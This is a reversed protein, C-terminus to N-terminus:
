TFCSLLANYTHCSLVLRSNLLLGQGIIPLRTMSYAWLCNCAIDAYVCMQSCMTWIINCQHPLCEEAYRWSVQWGSQFCGRWPRSSWM